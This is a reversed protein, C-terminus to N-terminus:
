KLPMSYTVGLWHQKPFEAQSVPLPNNLPKYFCYFWSVRPSLPQSVGIGVTALPGGAYDIMMTVPHKPHKYVVGDIAAILGGSKKNDLDARKFGLINSQYGLHLRANKFAKSFVVYPSPFYYQDGPYKKAGIFMAGVAMSVEDSGETLIRWKFNWNVRGPYNGGDVFSGSGLFDAGAELKKYGYELSYLMTRTDAAQPTKYAYNYYNLMMVLTDNATIDTSPVNCFITPIAYSVRLSFLVLLLAASFIILARCSLSKAVHLSLVPCRGKR